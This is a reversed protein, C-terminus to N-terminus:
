SMMYNEESFYNGGNNAQGPWADDESEGKLYDELRKMYQSGFGMLLQQRNDSMAKSLASTDEFYKMTSSTMMNDLQQRQADYLSAAKEKNAEEAAALSGVVNDLTRNNYKQVAAVAEGTAGTAVARNRAAKTQEGLQERVRKLMNRSNANDLYNRYYNRNFATTANDMQRQYLENMMNHRLKAMDMQRNYEEQESLFSILPAAYNILNM